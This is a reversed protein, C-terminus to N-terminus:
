QFHNSNSWKKPTCGYIFLHLISYPIEHGVITKRSTECDIFLTYELVKFLIVFSSHGWGTASLCFLFFVNRILANIINSCCCCAMLGVELCEIISYTYILPFFAAFYSVVLIIYKKHSFLVTFSM